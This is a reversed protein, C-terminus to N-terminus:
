DRHTDEDVAIPTRMSRNIVRHTDWVAVSKDYPQGLRTIVIPTGSVVIGFPDVPIHTDQRIEGVTRIGRNTVTPTGPWSPHGLGVPSSPHGRHTDRVFPYPQGKTPHSDRIRIPTGDDLDNTVIPTGKRSSCFPHGFPSAKRSSCSPHGSRPRRMPTGLRAAMSTHTDWVPIATGTDCPQGRTAPGRAAATGFPYPQGTTMHSDWDVTTLHGDRVPILNTAIPTGAVISQRSPHGKAAM